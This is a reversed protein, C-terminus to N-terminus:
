GKKLFNAIGIMTPAWLGVFLSLRQANDEVSNYFFLMLSASLPISLIGIYFCVYMLLIKSNEKRIIYNFIKKTM